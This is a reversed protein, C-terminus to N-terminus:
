LMLLSSHTSAPLSITTTIEKNITGAGEVKSNSTRTGNVKAKGKGKSDVDKSAADVRAKGKSTLSMKHIVLM